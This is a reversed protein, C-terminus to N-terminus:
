KPVELAKLLDRLERSVERLQMVPDCLDADTAIDDCDNAAKAIADRALALRARYADLARGWQWVAGTAPNDDPWEPLGEIRAKL